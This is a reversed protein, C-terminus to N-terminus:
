YKNTLHENAAIVKSDFLCFCCLYILRLEEENEDDEQQGIVICDVVHPSPNFSADYEKLMEVMHKSAMLEMFEENMRLTVLMNCMDILDHAMATNGPTCTINASSICRECYSEANLAGIQGFSSRAMEPLLGYTGDKDQSRISRYVKGV